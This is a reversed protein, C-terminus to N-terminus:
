SDLSSGGERGGEEGGLTTLLYVCVLQMMVNSSRTPNSQIDLQISYTPAATQPQVPNSQIKYIASNSCGRGGRRKGKLLIFYDVADM